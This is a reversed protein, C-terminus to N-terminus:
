VAQRLMLKIIDEDIRKYKVLKRLFYNGVDNIEEPYYGTIEYFKSVSRKLDIRLINRINRSDHIGWQGTYGYYLKAGQNLSQEFIEKFEPTVEKFSCIINHLLANDGVEHALWAKAAVLRHNGIGCYAIDGVFHVRMEKESGDTPFERGQENSTFYEIIEDQVKEWGVCKLGHIAKRWNSGFPYFDDKSLGKISSLQVDMYSENAAQSIYMMFNGDVIIEDLSNSQASNAANILEQKFADIEANKKCRTLYLGLLVFVASIALFVTLYANSISNNIYSFSVLFLILAALVVLIKGIEFRTIARM